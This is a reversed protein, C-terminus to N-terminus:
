KSSSKPVDSLMVAIGALMALICPYLVVVWDYHPNMGTNQYMSFLGIAGTLSILGGKIFRRINYLQLILSLFLMTTIFLVLVTMSYVRFYVMVATISCIGAIVGATKGLKGTFIFLLLLAASAIAFFATLLPFFFAHEYPTLSFYSFSAENPSDLRMVYASSNTMAWIALLKIFLSIWLAIKNKM